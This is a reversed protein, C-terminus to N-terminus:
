PTRSGYVPSFYVSVPGCCCVYSVNTLHLVQHCVYLVNEFARNLITRRGRTHWRCFFTQFCFHSLFSFSGVKVPMKLNITLICNGISTHVLAPLFLFAKASRGCFNILEIPTSPSTGTSRLFSTQSVDYIFSTKNSPRYLNFFIIIKVATRQSRRNLRRANWLTRWTVDLPLRRPDLAHFVQMKVLALSVPLLFLLSLFSQTQCTHFLYFSIFDLFLNQSPFLSSLQSRPTSQRVFVNWLHAGRERYCYAKFFNM